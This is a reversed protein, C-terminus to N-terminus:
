GERVAVGQHGKVKRVSKRGRIFGGKQSIREGMGSGKGVAEKWERVGKSGRILDGRGM